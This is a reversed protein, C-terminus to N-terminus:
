PNNGLLSLSISEMILLESQSSNTQCSDLNGLGGKGSKGQWGSSYILGGLAIILALVFWRFPTGSKM